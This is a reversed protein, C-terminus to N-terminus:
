APFNCIPSIHASMFTVLIFTFILLDIICINLSLIIGVRSFLRLILPISVFLCCLIFCDLLFLLRFCMLCITDWTWQCIDILSHSDFNVVLNRRFKYFSNSKHLFHVSSEIALVYSLKILKFVNLIKGEVRKKPPKWSRNDLTM